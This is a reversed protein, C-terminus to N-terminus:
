WHEYFESLVEDILEVSYPQIGLEHKIVAKVMDDLYFGQRLDFSEDPRLKMRQCVHDIYAQTDNESPPAYRNIMQAVTTLGHLQQYNILIKALARIGYEPSEFEEFRTDENTDKEGSWRIETDTINGPNNNRWGRLDFLM